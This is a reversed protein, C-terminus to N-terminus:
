ADTESEKAVYKFVYDGAELQGDKAKMHVNFNKVTGCGFSLGIDEIDGSPSNILEVDFDPVRSFRPVFKGTGTAYRMSRNLTVVLLGTNHVDTRETTEQSVSISPSDNNDTDKSEQSVKM